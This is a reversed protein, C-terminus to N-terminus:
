FNKGAKFGFCTAWNDLTVFTLVDYKGNVNTLQPAQGDAWKITNPWVVSVVTATYKLYLSFSAATDAEQGSEIVISTISEELHVEFVNSLRTDLTLVGHVIIPISLAEKYGMLIPETVPQLNCFAPALLNLTTITLRGHVDVDGNFTNNQNFLNQENLKAVHGTHKLDNFSGSTAVPALQAGNITVGTAVELTGGITVNGHFANDNDFFNPVNLKAVGGTDKLDNFSGTTAINALGTINAATLNGQSAYRSDARGQTLISDDGWVTVSHLYAMSANLGISGTTTLEIAGKDLVMECYDTMADNSSYFGIRKGVEHEELSGSLSTPLNVTTYEIGAYCHIGYGAFAPKATADFILGKHKSDIFRM